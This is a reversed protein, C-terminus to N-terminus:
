APGSRPQHAHSDHEASERMRWMPVRVADWRKSPVRRLDTHQLMLRLHRDPTNAGSGRDVVVGWVSGDPRRDIADTHHGVMPAAFALDTAGRRIMYRHLQNLVPDTEGVAVTVPEAAAALASGIRRSQWVRRDGVVFLHARARTIAVNWLNPQRDLWDISRRPMGPSAVLSFIIIDCEGGQFTHVTGVVVEGSDDLRRKIEDSQAKFPTVVGITTGEPLRGPQQLQAILRLVVDIEERNYWSSQAGRQANGAVDRWVIPAQDTGNQKRVDTLVTLQGRYFLDNAVGAIDPHCRFHEDLLLSEGFSQEAAEFASHRLYSMQRRELWAASIQATAAAAIEGRGDLTTIHTLQMPDGIILARKARFLLPLVAAISSQSAEDIVVLDFLAADLPFARASQATVAWAPAGTLAARKAPWDTGSQHRSLAYIQRRGRVANSRVVADLLETSATQLTDTSHTFRALLETDSPRASESACLRRWTLEAAALEGLLECQREVTEPTEALGLRRVLRRCRWGAILSFRQVAVATRALAAPEIREFLPAIQEVRLGLKAALAERVAAVDLLAVEIGAIDALERRQRDLEATAADVMVTLTSMSQVAPRLGALHDLGAQQNEQYAQSGTRIVTGPILKECRGWVEDVAKNNTSAVLVTEGACVATAVLDVVLQSKGTGPPGTAVTLPRAMASRIIEAQAENCALPTVLRRTSVPVPAPAADAPGLCALATRPIQSVREALAALDALLKKNPGGDAASMRFLVAVNRAGVAGTAATLSEDLFEPEPEDVTVVGLENRLIHRVEAALAAYEGAHWTPEYGENFASAADSELFEKLLIPNVIPPGVPVLRDAAGGLELRRILLPAFKRTAAARASRGGPRVVVAPYGTWLQENAEAVEAVFKELETPVEIAHDDDLDGVLLRERGPICAYTDHDDLSLWALQEARLCTEYYTLLRKWDPTLSKSPLAGIEAGSRPRASVDLQIPSLPSAALIIRGDVGSASIVPTQGADQRRLRDNVFDFLAAVSLESKGGAASGTRMAEVFVGTFVSPQTADRGVFSAEGARSSSVVYVGRSALAAPHGDVTGKPVADSTRLGVSFGGSRCSDIIVVKQPAVCQELLQNVFGARMSTEGLRDPDSDTGIFHFEGDSRVSRAGHGSFYFVMLEDERSEAVFEDVATRMQDTTLDILSEVDSFAGVRRDRLVEEVLTLDTRVSPLPAFGPHTYSENGILLARRRALRSM